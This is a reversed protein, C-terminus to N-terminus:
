TCRSSRATRQRWPKGTRASGGPRCVTSPKLTLWVAHFVLSSTNTAGGSTRATRGRRPELPDDDARGLARDDEAIATRVHEERGVRVAHPGDVVADDHSEERHRLRHGDERVLERRDDRLVPVRVDGHVLM